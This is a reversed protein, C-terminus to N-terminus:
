TATTGFVTGVVNNRSATTSSSFGISSTRSRTTRRLPATWPRGCDASSAAPTCINPALSGIVPPQRVIEALQGNKERTPTAPLAWFFLESTRAVGEPSDFGPEYDEYTIEMADVQKAYDDEGLDDHYSRLDMAGAEPSWLWATIEAQDGTANRIDLQAPNSQWFNRLGFAAGGEPTGVYGLGGARSGRASGLWTFGEGTRKRIEYGDSNPQFLTWDAFAPIYNLRGSVTKAWTGVPPTARGALQAEKVESGPDRRLGTLTRVAEAFLGNDQGSFRVHRDYLEGRLPVAFRIGLGSIADKHPDGDYVITHLMRVADGGAYFYLRVVFPLWERATTSSAHKGTLKIVARVPGSSEM